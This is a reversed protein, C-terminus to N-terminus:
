LGLLIMLFKNRSINKVILIEKCHKISNGILTVPFVGFAFFQYILHALTPERPRSCSLPVAGKEGKNPLIYM